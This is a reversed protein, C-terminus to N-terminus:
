GNMGGGLRFVKLRLVLALIRQCGGLGMIFIVGELWTM